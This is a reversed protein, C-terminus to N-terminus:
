TSDKSWGSEKVWPNRRKGTNEKGKGDSDTMKRERLYYRPIDSFPLLIAPTVNQNMQSLVGNLPLGNDNALSKKFLPRGQDILCCM